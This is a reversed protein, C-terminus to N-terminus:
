QALQDVANDVFTLRGEIPQGGVEPTTAMLLDRSNVRVRQFAETIDGLEQIAVTMNSYMLESQATLDNLSSIGIYGIAAAICSTLIFGLILKTGIKLDYFWKMAHKGELPHSNRIRMSMDSTFGPIDRFSGPSM